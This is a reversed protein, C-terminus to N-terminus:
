SCMGFDCSQRETPTLETPFNDGFEFFRLTRSHDIFWCISHPGKRYGNEARPEAVYFLFGWATGGRNVRDRVARLWNGIIGWAFLVVSHTECDGADSVWLPVRHTLGGGINRTQVLEPPLADLCAAATARVWEASVTEFSADPFKWGATNIGSARIIDIVQQRSLNM